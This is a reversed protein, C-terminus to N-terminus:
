RSRVTGLGGDVGLIQGTVFSQAPDLLWEIASAVEDPQGIRGLPHMGRSAELAKESGTISAALPTDILGPAVVNVRIGASAYSAAASLALGQVGAKAAAIAEHNPLGTRAAATSVLVISGGEKRLAKTATQVVAFATRLNVRVTQDFDEIKMMHAPRLLISGVSNVIGDFRGHTELCLDILSQVDAPEAADISRFPSDVRSGLAKLREEDRAGLVIKGGRAHIRDVLASGIGGTAGLVIYAHGEM